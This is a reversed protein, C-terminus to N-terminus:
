PRGHPSLLRGRRAQGIPPRRWLSRPGRPVVVGIEAILKEEVGLQEALEPSLEPAGIHGFYLQSGAEAAPRVEEVITALQRKRGRTRKFPVIEGRSDRAGAQRRPGHRPPAAGKRHAWEQGSVGAHRRRFCGRGGIAREAVHRVEDFDGGEDICRLAELLILGSGMEASKADLVHVPRDVM